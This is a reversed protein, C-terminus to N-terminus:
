ACTIKAKKLKPKRLIQFDFTMATKKGGNACKELEPKLTAVAIPELFAFCFPATIEVDAADVALCINVVLLTTGMLALNKTAAPSASATCDVEKPVVGYKYHIKCKASLGAVSEVAGAGYGPAARLAEVIWLKEAPTLDDAKELADYDIQFGTKDANPIVLDEPEQAASQSGILAFLPAILVIWVLHRLM